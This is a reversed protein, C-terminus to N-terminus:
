ARRVSAPWKPQLPAPAFTLALLATSKALSSPSWSNRFSLWLQEQAEARKGVGMLIKAFARRESAFILKFARRIEKDTQQMFRHELIDFARIVAGSSTLADSSLSGGRIRYAVLPADAYIVPGHLALSNFLYADEAGSAQFPGFTCGDEQLSPKSAKADANKLAWGPFCAYSLSAFMGRHKKYRKLFQIPPILEITPATDLPDSQWKHDGYDYFNQHGTFLAVAAPFKEFLNAQFELYRPHWIDDSDLFALLEGNAHNCLTNRARAVGNHEGLFVKVRPGYSRLISVTEDVSGDDVVLVEDPVRTQQLVSDITARVTLASNYTPILASIRM